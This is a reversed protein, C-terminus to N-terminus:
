INALTYSKRPEINRKELENGDLFFCYHPKTILFSWLFRTVKQVTTVFTSTLM